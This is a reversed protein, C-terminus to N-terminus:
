LITSIDSAITRPLLSRQTSRHNAAALLASHVRGSGKTTVLPRSTRVLLQAMELADISHVFKSIRNCKSLPVLAAQEWPEKSQYQGVVQARPEGADPWTKYQVREAIHLKMRSLLDQYVAISRDSQTPKHRDGRGPPRGTASQLARKSGSRRYRRLRSLKPYRKISHM